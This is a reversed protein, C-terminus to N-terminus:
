RRCQIENYMTWLEYNYMSLKDHLSLKHVPIFAFPGTLKLCYVPKLFLKEMFVFKQRGKELPGREHLYYWFVILCRWAPWWSMILNKEKLFVSTLFNWILFSLTPNEIRISYLLCNVNKKFQQWWCSRLNGARIDM